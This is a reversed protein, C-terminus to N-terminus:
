LQNLDLPTTKGQKKAEIAEDALRELVDESESFAKAWDREAELEDLLWKALANQEIDPLKTAQEFARALLTTM